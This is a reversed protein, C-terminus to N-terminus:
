KGTVILEVKSYKYLGSTLTFGCEYIGSDATTVNSIVLTATSEKSVRSKLRVPCEPGVSWKWKPKSWKYEHAVQIKSTNIYYYWAPAYSGFEANRNSVNYDWVMRANQGRVVYLVSPPVKTFPSPIGDPM